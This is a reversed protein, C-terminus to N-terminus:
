PAVNTAHGSVLMWRGKRRAYVDTYRIDTTRRKGAITYQQRVRGTIVASEGYSRIIMETPEYPEMRVAPNGVAALVAARRMTVGQPTVYVYDESLHDEFWMTDGTWTAVTLEHDLRRLEDLDDGFASFAILFLLAAAGRLRHTM